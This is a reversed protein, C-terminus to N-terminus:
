YRKLGGMGFHLKLLISIMSQCRACTNEQSNQSNKLFEKIVFCRSRTFLYHIKFILVFLADQLDLLLIDDAINLLGRMKQPFIELYTCALLPTQLINYLIPKRKCFHRNQHKHNHTKNHKNRSTNTNMRICEKRNRKVYISINEKM